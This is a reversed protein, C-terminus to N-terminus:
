RGIDPYRRKQLNTDLIQHQLDGGTDASDKCRLVDATQNSIKGGDHTKEQGDGAGHADDKYDAGDTKHFPYSLSLGQFM